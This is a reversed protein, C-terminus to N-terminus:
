AQLPAGPKQIWGENEKQTPDCSHGSSFGFLLFGHYKRGSKPGQRKCAEPIFMRFIYFDNKSFLYTDVM